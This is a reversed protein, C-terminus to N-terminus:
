SAGNGAGNAQEAIFADLAATVRDVTIRPPGDSSDVTIDAKAYIPYREDMLRQLIEEPDGDKLLPRDDRRAVRDLLTQLDARLWISIGSESIAARTEPDIFAGGGTSLVHVPGELLRRMVRREGKRFEEEGYREFFDEITCGAAAEIEADADVFPLGLREALRRGISSKGSGMLGVLVITQSTRSPVGNM